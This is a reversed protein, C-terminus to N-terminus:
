PPSAIIGVFDFVLSFGAERIAEGQLTTLTSGRGPNERRTSNTSPVDPSTSNAYDISCAAAVNRIDELSLGSVETRRLGAGYGLAIVAADRIGVPTADTCGDILSKLEGKSPARGAPIASGPVSRLHQVKELEEGPYEGLRWAEARRQGGVLVSEGHGSQLARGAKDQDNSMSTAFSNHQWLVERANKFGLLDRAIINLAGAM